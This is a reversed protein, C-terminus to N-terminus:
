VEEKALQVTYKLFQRKNQCSLNFKQRNELQQWRKPGYNDHDPQIIYVIVYSKYNLLLYTGILYNIVKQSAQWRNLLHTACPHIKDWNEHQNWKLCSSTMSISTPRCTSSYLQSICSNSTVFTRSSSSKRMLPHM